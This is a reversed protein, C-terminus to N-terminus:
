FCKDLKFPQRIQCLLLPFLVLQERNLQERPIRRNVPSSRHQLTRLARALGLNRLKIRAATLTATVERRANGRPLRDQRLRVVRALRALVLRQVSLQLVQVQLVARQAVALDLILLGWALM